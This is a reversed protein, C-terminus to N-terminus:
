AKHCTLAWAPIAQVQRWQKQMGNTFTVDTRVPIVHVDTDEFRVRKTLTSEDDRIVFINFEPYKETNQLHVQQASWGQPGKQLRQPQGTWAKHARLRCRTGNVWRNKTDSNHTLM